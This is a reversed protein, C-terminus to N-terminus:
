RGHVSVRRSVTGPEGDDDTAVLEVGHTVADIAQTAPLKAAFFRSWTVAGGVFAVFGLFGGATVLLPLGKTALGGLVRSVWGPQATVGGETVQRVEVRIPDTM